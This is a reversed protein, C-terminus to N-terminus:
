AAGTLGRRVRRGGSAAEMEELSMRRLEVSFTWVHGEPDAVTYDRHGYFHDVPEHLVKGGAARARECHADLDQPLRFGLSQTNVGGVSGPARTWDSWERDINITVGGFSVECHGLSGDAGEVVMSIEFDFARELWELQARVDRCYLTPFVAIAAATM